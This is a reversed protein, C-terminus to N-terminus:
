VQLAIISIGFTVIKELFSRQVTVSSVWYSM